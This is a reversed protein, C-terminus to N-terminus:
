IAVRDLGGLMTEVYAVRTISDGVAVFGTLLPVLLGIPM